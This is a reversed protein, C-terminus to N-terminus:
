VQFIGSPPSSYSNLRRKLLVWIHEIPSLDHSQAPWELVFFPQKGFWEGVIKTTRVVVNDQQFILEELNFEFALLTACIKSWFQLTAELM